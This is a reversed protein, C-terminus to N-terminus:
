TGERQSLLPRRPWASALTLGYLFAATKILVSVLTPEEGPLLLRAAELWLFIMGVLGTALLLQLRLYEPRLWPRTMMGAALALCAGPLVDLATAPLRFPAYAWTFIQRWTRDADADFRFPWLETGIVALFWLAIALLKGASAVGLTLVLPRPTM